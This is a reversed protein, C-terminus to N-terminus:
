LLDPNRHGGHPAAIFAMIRGTGFQGKLGTIHDHQPTRRLLKGMGLFDQQHTLDPHNNM